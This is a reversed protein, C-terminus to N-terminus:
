RNRQAVRSFIGQGQDFFSTAIKSWGGFMDVSFLKAPEKYKADYKKAAEATVPRYGDKAFVEQAQPTYLFDVFAKVVERNGHKDVNKDVIAVPNEILITSSPLVYPFVQGGAVALNLIENEYTLLADGKGNIFTQLAERASKDQVSVNKFVSALMDEAKQPSAGGKLAAGYIALVNWQAGGSTRPNPAIVDVGPKTLDVWDKIQKPNGPRTAIVVVSNAVMGKYTGKNWDPKVLAAEVLKDVDGALSLAVVDAELGAIVARTQAGSAGYSKTFNVTKGTKQKWYTQFAPIIGKDYAERPTSYAVLNINADQAQTVQAEWIVIGTAVLAGLLIRRSLSSNM